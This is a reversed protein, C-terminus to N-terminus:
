PLNIIGVVICTRQNVELTDSEASFCFFTRKSV